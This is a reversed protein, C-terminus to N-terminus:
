RRSIIIIMGVLMMVGMVGLIVYLVWSKSGSGGGSGSVRRHNPQVDPHNVFNGTCADFLGKDPDTILCDSINNSKSCECIANAKKKLCEQKHQKYGSPDGTFPCVTDWCDDQPSTYISM